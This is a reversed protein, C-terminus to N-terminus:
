DPRPKDTAAASAGITSEIWGLHRSIREYVAIAGYRGQTEESFHEGEIEGVAVGALRYDGPGGLLAPGGSDWLGPTGEMPLAASNPDRPDDFRMRLRGGAQEIRNEAKRLRGDSFERGSTGWGSFGWGLLTAVQALENAETQLPILPSPRPHQFRLLALDTSAAIDEDYDPHLVVAEILRDRGGVRVRYQGGDAVIRSLTTAFACHAATIAWRPHVATAACIRDGGRQELHFVAPFESARIEHGRPNVDHRIIIAAGGGSFALLALSTLAILSGRLGPGGM